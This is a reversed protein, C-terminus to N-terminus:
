WIGGGRSETGQVGSFRETLWTVGFIIILLIISIMSGNHWDYTSFYSGILSGMIYTSNYVMDLVVYNTMSPLFVMMVGSVVGPMTLPLIVRWFVHWKTAGLDTAAEPLSQDLKLITTYLPLIMFPLFDYIMCLVTNFFPYMALNGEVLSLIEKLATIRLTFNIWMPMVLLVVLVGGRRFPGRALIFATPYAILLCGVTTAVAILFSYFLTGLAKGNTFFAQFNELTFQGEGDTLAYYLVVLLPLVVFGTLFIVYPISLQKRSFKM